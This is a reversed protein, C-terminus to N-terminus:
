RPATQYRKDVYEAIRLYAHASMPYAHASAITGRFVELLIITHIDINIPGTETDVVASFKGTLTLPEAMHSIEAEM